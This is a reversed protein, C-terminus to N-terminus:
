PMNSRVFPIAGEKKLIKLLSSDYTYPKEALNIIGGSCSM